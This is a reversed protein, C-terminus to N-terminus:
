IDEIKIIFSVKKYHDQNSFNYAPWFNIMKRFSIYDWGGIEGSVFFM